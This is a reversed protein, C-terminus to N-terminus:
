VYIFKMPDLDFLWDLEQQVPVVKTKFTLTQFHNSEKVEWKKKADSELKLRRENSDEDKVVKFWLSREKFIEGQSRSLAAGTGSKVLYIFIKLEGPKTMDVRAIMPFGKGDGLDGFAQGFVVNKEVFKSVRQYLRQRGDRRERRADKQMRVFAKHTASLPNKISFITPDKAM